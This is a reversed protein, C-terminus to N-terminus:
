TNDFLEVRQLNANRTRQIELERRLDAIETHNQQQMEESIRQENEMEQIRDLRDHNQQQLVM